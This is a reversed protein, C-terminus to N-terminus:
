YHKQLESIINKAQNAAGKAQYLIEGQEDLVSILNSHSVENNEVAKYETELAMALLRVDNEDGRLLTWNKPDLKREQAFAKLVEATDTKPTLSVLVFAYNDKKDKPISKEVMRMNEIIIPCTHQCHTYVLSIIQKKGSLNKLTIWEGDQTQWQSNIQYLSNEPLEAQLSFSLISLILIAIIQKFKNM